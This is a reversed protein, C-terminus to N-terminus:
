ATGRRGSAARRGALGRLRPWVLHDISWRGAGMLLVALAVSLYMTSMERMAWSDSGHVVFAAVAMTFGMGAAAVRTFMGAAVLLGCVFEGLAAGLLSNRWGIRLPDPFSTANGLYSQMKGLGHFLALQVGFSVRLVLLALDFRLTNSAM